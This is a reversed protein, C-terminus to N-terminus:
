VVSKRALGCSANGRGRGSRAVFRAEVDFEALTLTAM